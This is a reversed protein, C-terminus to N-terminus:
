LWNLANRCRTTGELDNCRQYLNKAEEWRKLSELCQAAQKWQNNKKFCRQADDLKGDQLYCRGADGFRGCKEFNVAARNHLMCQEFKRAAEMHRRTLELIEAEIAPRDTEQSWSILEAILTAENSKGSSRTLEIATAGQGCMLFLRAADTIRGVRSLVSAAGSINNSKLYADAAENFQELREFCYGADNFNGAKLFQEAAMSLKGAEEYCRAASQYDKLEIFLSGATDFNGSQQLCSAAREKKQLSLFLSAARPWNRAREYMRAAQYLDGTQEFLRASDILNGGKAFLQAAKKLMSAKEYMEGSETWRNLSELLKGAQEYKGGTTFCRAANLKDKIKLYMEGATVFDDVKVYLRAAKLYDGRLRYIDGASRFMGANECAQAAREFEGASSFTEAAMVWNGREKYIEAAKLYEGAYEFCRAADDPHMCQLYMSAADLFASTEELCIAAEKIHGSRKLYRLAEAYDELEFLAKGLRGYDHCRKWLRIARNKCREAYRDGNSAERTADGSADEQIHASEMDSASAGPITSVVGPLEDFGGTDTLDPQVMEHNGSQGTEPSSRDYRPESLPPFIYDAMTSGSPLRAAIRDEELPAIRNNNDSRVRHKQFEQWLDEAVKRELFIVNYNPLYQERDGYFAFLQDVPSCDNSAVQTLAMFRDFREACISRLSDLDRPTVFLLLSRRARTTGMYWLDFLRAAEIDATECNQVSSFPRYIIADEFEMGKSSKLPLLFCNENDAIARRLDPLTQEDEALIVLPPGLLECQEKLKDTFTTFDEPTGVVVYPKPGHHLPPLGLDAAPESALSRLFVGLEYIERTNRFNSHLQVKVVSNPRHLKRFIGEIYSHLEQWRFGSRSINQNVDGSVFPYSLAGGTHRCQNEWFLMISKWELETFDQIEDIVIWTSREGASLIARDKQNEYSLRILDAEDYLKLRKLWKEYNSFVEFIEEMDAPVRGYDKFIRSYDERDVPLRDTGPVFRGKLISYVLNYFEEPNFNRTWRSKGAIIRALIQVSEEHSILQRGNSVLNPRLYQRCFDLYSFVHIGSADSETTSSGVLNVKYSRCVCALEEHYTFLFVSDTPNSEYVNLAYFLALTTKGTGASGQVLYALDLKSLLEEQEDSLKLYRDMGREFTVYKDPDSLIYHPVRFLLGASCDSDDSSDTVVEALASPELCLPDILEMSSPTHSRMVRSYAEDHHNVDEIVLSTGTEATVVAFIVRLEINMRASYVKGRRTYLKEVNLGPIDFRGQQLKTVLEWFRKHMGPHLVRALSARVRPTIYVNEFPM